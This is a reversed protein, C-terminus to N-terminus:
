KKVKKSLVSFASIKKTEWKKEIEAKMRRLPLFQVKQLMRSDHTGANPEQM